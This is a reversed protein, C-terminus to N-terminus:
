VYYFFTIRFSCKGVGNSHERENTKQSDKDSSASSGLYSAGCPLQGEVFNDRLFIKLQLELLLANKKPPSIYFHFKQFSFLFFDSYSLLLMLKIVELKKCFRSLRIRYEQCNVRRQM